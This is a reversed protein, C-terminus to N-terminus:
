KKQENAKVKEKAGKEREVKEMAALEAMVEADKVSEALLRVAHAPIGQHFTIMAPGGGRNSRGEISSVHGIVNGAQDLVASGSSGPAWDTSFNVRMHRASLLADKEGGEYGDNWYFRNVIGESFYGIQGLPSSYCYAAAGQQVGGNLALAKFSGGEVRLLAADMAKSSAIVSKVPYVEGNGDVVVLYGKRMKTGSHIVHDCTAVVDPAVAYGGALNLHWDDCQMCLYCYGVQLNAARAVVAVEERSLLDTKVEKLAVEEPKVNELSKTVDERSIAKGEEIMVRIKEILVRKSERIGEPTQDVIPTGDGQGMARPLFLCVVGICIVAFFRRTRM